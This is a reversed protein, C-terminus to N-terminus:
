CLIWGSSVSGSNVAGRIRVCRHGAHVNVPGAHHTFRGKDVVARSGRAQVSVSMTKKGSKKKPYTLACVYKGSRFVQVSGTSFSLTRVKHGPCLATAAGAPTPAALALLGTATLVTLGLAATRRIAGRDM